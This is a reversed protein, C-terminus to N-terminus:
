PLLKAELSEAEASIPGLYASQGFYALLVERQIAPASQPERRTQQHAGKPRTHQEDALPPRAREVRRLNNPRLQPSGRSSQRESTADGAAPATTVSTVSSATRQSM